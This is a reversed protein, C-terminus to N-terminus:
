HIEIIKESLGKDLLLVTRLMIDAGNAMEKPASYEKPNHSIGDKSPIFVLGIPGLKGMEQVDHGAGSQM